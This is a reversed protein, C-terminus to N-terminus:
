SSPCKTELFHNARYPVRPVFVSSGNRRKLRNAGTSAEGSPQRENPTGVQGGSQHGGRAGQRDTRVFVFLIRQM